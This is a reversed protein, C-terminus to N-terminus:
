SETYYFDTNIIVAMSSTPHINVSYNLSSHVDDVRATTLQQVRVRATISPQVDMLLTSQGQSYACTPHPPQTGATKLPLQQDRLNPVLTNVEYLQLQTTNWLHLHVPTCCITLPDM